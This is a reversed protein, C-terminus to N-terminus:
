PIQAPEDVVLRSGRVDGAKTARLPNKSEFSLAKVPCAAVCTGCKVCDTDGFKGNDKDVYPAIQMPCNKECLECSTCSDEIMLPYKDKSMYGAITGMPCVHCWIRPHIFIGLAIGVSSTVTLVIVFALGMRVPDPWAFYVQAGLVAFLAVIVAIRSGNSRFIEPIKKKRSIRDLFLDFFSGRPCMWDCWMRGKYVAIGLAGLMCGILLFGLLPYFWGVVAVLPLGLWTYLQLKRRHTKFEPLSM